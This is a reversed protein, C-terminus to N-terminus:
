KSRKYKREYYDKRDDPSADMNIEHKVKLITDELPLGFKKRYLDSFAYTDYIFKDKQWKYPFYGIHYPKVEQKKQGFLTRKENQTMDVVVHNDNIDQIATIEVKYFPLIGWLRRFNTCHFTKDFRSRVQKVVSDISQDDYFFHGGKTYQGFRAIFETLNEIILPNDFDFQNAISNGFETAYICSKPPIYEQMILIERTLQETMLAPKGHKRTLIIPINSYFRPQEPYAKKKKKSRFLNTFKIRRCKCKYKFLASICASKFARSGQYTKGTRMSGCYGQITGGKTSTSGLFESALMIVLFISLIIFVVVM